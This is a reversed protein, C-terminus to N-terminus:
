EDLPNYGTVKKKKPPTPAEEASEIKKIEQPAEIQERGSFDRDNTQTVEIIFENEPNPVKIYDDPNKGLPACVERILSNIASFPITTLFSRPCEQAKILYELALEKDGIKNEVQAAHYFKETLMKGGKAIEGDSLEKASQYNGVNYYAQILNDVIVNDANNYDYAEKCFALAEERTDALIKYYGLTGYVSTSKYDEFVQEMLEKAEQFRMTRYMLLSLNQRTMMLEQKKLRNRDKLLRNLIYESRQTNGMRILYYAYTIAINPPYKKRKYSREFWKVCEVEDGQGYRRTAMVMCFTPYLIYLLVALGTLGVVLVGIWGFFWWAAFTVVLSFLLFMWVNKKM